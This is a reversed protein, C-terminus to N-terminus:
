RYLAEIVPQHHTEIVRRKLKLTVTLEGGDVSFDPEVIAFRRISEFRALNANVAEIEAAVRDTIRPDDVAADALDPSSSALAERDLTVLAVV